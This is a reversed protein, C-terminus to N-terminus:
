TDWILYQFIGDPRKSLFDTMYKKRQMLFKKEDWKVNRPIEKISNYM